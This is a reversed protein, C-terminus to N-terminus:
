SSRVLPLEVIFTSGANPQSEVRITGALGDVITRVIYLGLGLGGYHRVSVAREFPKFIRDMMEKPIGIGRDRVELKAIGDHQDISVEIPKGLGFKIANSLLNTIEQELRFRDWQGITPGKSSISLSSGSRALEQGLRTSVQRVVDGLDVDEFTFQMRETRIRTLDLLEDVFRILLHDAREIIQLVRQMSEPPVKGRQLSQVAMHLSTVPGRIEHAAISLFEDRAKLAEQAETFLRANQVSLAIRRGLEDALDLDHQKFVRGRAALFTMAGIVSGKVVLPIAMCSRGRLLYMTAHGSLVASDLEPHFSEAGRCVVLLRRPGGNGLLDVACGDGIFPVALHAVSDLAPEIDLSALLRAADALFL